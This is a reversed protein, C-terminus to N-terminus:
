IGYKHVSEVMAQLNEFRSNYPAECGSCMIFSRPGIEKILRKCYADVDDTSGFSLMTASVDGMICQRDGVIEKAQFIDTDGDFHLIVSHDPLDRLFCHLGKIWDSDLHMIPIINHSLVVEILERMYRWAFREFMEPNLMSPTGRWGGVWIGIGGPMQLQQELVGINFEQALKFVQEVKDPIDFLDETVFPMLSRAGCFMEIPGGCGGINIVPYGAESFAAYAPPINAFFGTEALKANPNGCREELFKAYWPGFGMELIDDYEGQQMNEFEHVQWLENEDLEVGPTVVQSLWSGPLTYSSYIAAHVGDVDGLDQVGKLNVKWNLEMDAIYDGISVGAHRALCATGLFAVPIRDTVEGSYAARIRDLREDYITM